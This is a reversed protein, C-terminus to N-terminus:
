HINKANFSLCIRIGDGYYPHVWHLMDSPFLFLTGAKPFFGYQTGKEDIFDIRGSFPEEKTPQETRVYYAGSIQCGPHTHPANYSGQFAVNFWSGAYNWDYEPKPEVNFKTPCARIYAMMPESLAQFLPLLLNSGRSGDGLKTDLNRESHWGRINSHKASSDLGKTREMEEHVYAELKKNVNELDLTFEYLFPHPTQKTEM